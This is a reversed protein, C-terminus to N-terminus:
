QVDFRREVYEIMAIAQGKLLRNYQILQNNTSRIMVLNVGLQTLDDQTLNRVQGDPKLYSVFLDNMNRQTFHMEAFTEIQEKHMRTLLGEVQHLIDSRGEYRAILNALDSNALQKLHLENKIATIAGTAGYFPWFSMVRAVLIQFNKMDLKELPLQAIISLSDESDHILSEASDIQHLAVTDTALDRILQSALQRAREGESIYERFNEAFFGLTVALFIMLFELFYEKLHKKEIQPHHHVEM